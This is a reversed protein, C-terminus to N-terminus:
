WSAEGFLTWRGDQEKKSKKYKIDAVKSDRGVLTREIHVTCMQKTKDTHRRAAAVADAKKDKRAICFDEKGEIYVCYELKWKTTGKLPYDTVQTKIKNTNVVPKMTCIAQVGSARSIKDFVEEVFEDLDLKSKQYESTRDTIGYACSNIKGSYGEQHGYKEDADAKALKVAEELTPGHAVIEFRQAGM